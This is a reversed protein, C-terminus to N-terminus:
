SNTSFIFQTGLHESIQECVDSLEKQYQPHIHLEPENIIM